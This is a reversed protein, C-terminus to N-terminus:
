GWNGKVFVAEEDGPWPPITTIIIELSENFPNSFQFHTGQPLTVCINPFLEIESEMEDYKRWLRGKGEVIYWIEDVTKHYIAKSITKPPLTCHVMSAKKTQCLIRIESGDPALVDITEPVTKSDFMSVLYQIYKIQKRSLM